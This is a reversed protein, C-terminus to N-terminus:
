VPEDDSGGRSDTLTPRHKPKTGPWIACFREGHRATSVNTDVALDAVKFPTGVEIGNEFAWFCNAHGRLGRRVLLAAQNGLVNVKDQISGYVAPMRAKIVAIQLEVSDVKENSATLTDM